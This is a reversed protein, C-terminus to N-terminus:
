FISEALQSLTKVTQELHSLPPLIKGKESWLFEAAPPRLLILTLPGSRPGAM